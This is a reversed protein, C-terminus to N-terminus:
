RGRRWALWHRISEELAHLLPLMVWIVCAVTLPTTCLIQLYPPLGTLLPAIFYANFMAPPVLAIWVLDGDVVAPARSRGDPNCRHPR